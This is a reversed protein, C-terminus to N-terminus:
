PHVDKLTPPTPPDAASATTVVTTVQPKTTVTTEGPQPVDPRQRAFFYGSQQTCLVLLGGLLTQLLARGFEDVTPPRLIILALVAGFMGAYFYALGIQARAVTTDTVM